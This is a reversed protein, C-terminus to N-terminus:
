TGTAEALREREANIACGFMTILSLLYMWLLLAIVAGISGYFLNYNAINRVYWSFALTALFWLLAAAMAGPWLNKWRQPRAPGFRYLVLTTLMMAGFALVYRMLKGFLFLGGVLQEGQELMGLTTVLFLETRSGFVIMASAGLGPLASSAALGVAVLRGRIMPRNTPVKYVANFAEIMSLILGSAAWLSVALAFVILSVPKAGRVTFQQMVIEQTGPPVVEFLFRSIIESVERARMQVLLLAITTLVPFFSLLASYGAAKAIGLCGDEYLSILGRHLLWWFRTWVSFHV